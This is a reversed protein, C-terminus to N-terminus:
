ELGAQPDLKHLQEQRKFFVIHKNLSSPHKLDLHKKLKSPKLSNSALVESCLVCQPKEDVNSKTLTFNFKLYEDDYKMIKKFANYIQFFNIFIKNLILM